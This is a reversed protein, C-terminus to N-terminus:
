RSTPEPEQPVQCEALRKAEDSAKKFRRITRDILVEPELKDWGLALLKPHSEGSKKKRDTM